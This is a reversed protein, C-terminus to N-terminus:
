FAGKALEAEILDNGYRFSISGNQMALTIQGIRDAPKAILEKHQIASQRRTAISGNFTAKNTTTAQM